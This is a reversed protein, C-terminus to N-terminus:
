SEEPLNRQTSLPHQRIYDFHVPIPDVDEGVPRIMARRSVTNAYTVQGPYQIVGDDVVFVFEGVAPIYSIM